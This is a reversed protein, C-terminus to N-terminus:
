VLLCDKLHEAANDYDRHEHYLYSIWYLGETISIHNTPHFHVLLQVAYHYCHLVEALERQKHKLYGIRM